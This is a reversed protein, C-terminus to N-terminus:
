SLQKDVWKVWQLVAKDMWRYGYSGTPGLWGLHGGNNTILNDFNKKQPLRLFSKIGVVPDDKAHLIFTPLTIKEIFHQSSCHKYYDHANKFGNQPATYIDDFEYLNSFSFQVNLQAIERKLAAVFHTNFITKSMLHVSAELDLPPSIAALSDINGAINNGMEGAMKLTVNAGLSFGMQTVPSNPFKAALWLLVARTDESCGGYYLKKALGKGEGCGRLNMRMVLFGQQVLAQTIRILYNSSASGTLGHVLLIIRQSPCWTTPRNELLAIKDFDPLSILHTHAKAIFPNYPFYFAAITQAKGKSLFPFPRFLPMHLKNLIRDHM